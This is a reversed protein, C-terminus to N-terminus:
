SKAIKGMGNPTRRLPDMSRYITYGDVTHLAECNGDELWTETLVIIDPKNICLSINACFTQFKFMSLISRVNQYYIRLQQTDNVGKFGNSHLPTPCSTPLIFSSDRNLAKSRPRTM